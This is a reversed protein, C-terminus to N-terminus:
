EPQDDVHHEETGLLDLLSEQGKAELLELRGIMGGNRGDDSRKLLELLLKQGGPIAHKRIVFAADTLDSRLHRGSCDECEGYYEGNFDDILAKTQRLVKQEVHEAVEANPELQAKAVDIIFTRGWYLRMYFYSRGQHTLFGEQSYQRWGLGAEGGPRLRSTFAVKEDEPLSQLVDFVKTKVGNTDFTHYENSDDLMVLYGDDTPFLDVPAEDKEGQKWTWIKKGNKTNCLTITFDKQLSTKLNGNQNEPSKAQAEYTGNPSKATSDALFGPRMAFVSATLVVFAGLIYPIQRM